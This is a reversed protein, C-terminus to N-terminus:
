NGGDDDDDVFAAGTGDAAGGLVAAAAAAAAAEDRTVREESVLSLTPSADEETVAKGSLVASSMSASRDDRLMGAKEEAAEAEAGEAEKDWM